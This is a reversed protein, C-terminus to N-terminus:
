YMNFRSSGYEAKWSEGCLTILKDRCVDWVIESVIMPSVGFREDDVEASEILDRGFLSMESFCMYRVRTSTGLNGVLMEDCLVLTRVSGFGMSKLKSLLTIVCQVATKTIHEDSVNSDRAGFVATIEGGHFSTVIGGSRQLARLVVEYFQLCLNSLEVTTSSPAALAAAAGTSLISDNIANLNQLIHAGDTGGEQQQEKVAQQFILDEVDKLVITVLTVTKLQLSSSAGAAKTHVEEEESSSLVMNLVVKRLLTFLISLATLALSALSPPSRTEAVHISNVIFPIIDGFIVGGIQLQDLWILEKLELPATFQFGYKRYNCNLAELNSLHLIALFFGCLCERPRLKCWSEWDPREGRRVYLFRYAQVANVIYCVGLSAIIVSARASHNSNYLTRAFVWVGIFSGFTLIVCLVTLPKNSSTARINLVLVDKSASVAEVFDAFTNLDHWTSDQPDDFASFNHSSSGTSPPLWSMHASEGLLLGVAAACKKKLDDHATVSDERYQFLFREEPADLPNASNDDQRGTTLPKELRVQVM